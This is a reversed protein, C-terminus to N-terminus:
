QRSIKQTQKFSTQIVLIIVEKFYTDRSLCQINITLNTSNREKNGKNLGSLIVETMVEVNLRRGCKLILYADLFEIAKAKGELHGPDIVLNILACPDM